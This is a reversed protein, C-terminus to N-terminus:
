RNIGFLPRRKARMMAFLNDREQKSRKLDYQKEKHLVKVVEILEERSMEEIPVGRCCLVESM